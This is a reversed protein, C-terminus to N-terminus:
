ESAASPAVNWLKVTKDVGGSALLKGDPSFALSWVQGVHGRLALRKKFTATDWLVIEGPEIIRSNRPGVGVALTKGDPAFALCYAVQSDGHQLQAKEKGSSVDWLHVGGRYDCGALIKGDPSFALVRVYVKDGEVKGRQRGSAVEWLLVGDDTAVALTASDPTFAM